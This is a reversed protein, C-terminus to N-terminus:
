RDGGDCVPKPSVPRLSVLAQGLLAPDFGSSCRLRVGSPLDIELFGSSAGESQGNPPAEIAVPVLSIDGSAIGQAAEVGFKKRWSYVRNPNLGFGRAVESVAQDSAEVARVVRRKFTEDYRRYGERSVKGAM